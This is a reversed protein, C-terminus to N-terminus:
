HKKVFCMVCCVKWVFAPYINYMGSRHNMMTLDTQYNFM